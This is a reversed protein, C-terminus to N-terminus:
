ASDKKAGTAFPDPLLTRGSLAGLWVHGPMITALKSFPDFSMSM